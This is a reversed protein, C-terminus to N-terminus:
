KLQFHDRRRIEKKVAFILFLMSCFATLAWSIPYSIYICEVTKVLKFVTEIWIIRFACAGSLSVLMSTVSRGMGRLAGSMVEMLGCFFYLSLNIFLKIVGQEIAAEGTAYLGILPRAFILVIGQLVVGVCVVTLSACGVVKKINEFKRAGSNQGVFTLAAHHFANLAIYIFGEINSAAAAGSMTETGFGNISSQILVNSLSFLCGQLGSPIGIYLLKRLKQTDISLKRFSFHMYGKQRRLHVIMMIASLYQSAITGIAVGAVGMRFFIVLILNLVVNVAGSVSLFILPHKTDGTSRVMAASYNYVMSAPVGLFIIRIYLTSYEIVNDPNGMLRLMHPAFIFGFVSIIVSLILALTISTHLVGSVEKQENAGIHHAVCVGAGTALGMFLGVVLNTLSGTSGVAALAIDGEFKGVVILDAANYLSQLVGTFILPIAFKIIKSLFPGETMNIENSRKRM